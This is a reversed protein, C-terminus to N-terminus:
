TSICALAGIECGDGGFAMAKRLAKKVEEQSCAERGLYRERGFSVQDNYLSGRTCELGLVHRAQSLLSTVFSALLLAYHM